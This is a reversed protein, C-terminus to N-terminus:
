PAGAAGGAPPAREPEGGAAGCPAAARPPAAPPDPPRHLPVGGLVDLVLHGRGHLPEAGVDPPEAGLQPGRDLLGPGRHSRALGLQPAREADTGGGPDAVAPAALLSSRRIAGRVEASSRRAQVSKKAARCCVMTGEALRM